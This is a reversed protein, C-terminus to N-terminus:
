LTYNWFEEKSTNKSARTFVYWISEDETDRALHKAPESNKNSMM